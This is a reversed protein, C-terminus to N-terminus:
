EGIGALQEYRAVLERLQPATYGNAKRGTSEARALLGRLQQANRAYQQELRAKGHIKFMAPLDAFQQDTM